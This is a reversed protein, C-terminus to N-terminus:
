AGALMHFQPNGLVIQEQVEGSESQRGAQKALPQKRDAREIIREDGAPEIGQIIRDILICPENQHGGRGTDRQPGLAPCM